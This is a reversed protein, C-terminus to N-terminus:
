ASSEAKQINELTEPALSGGLDIGEFYPYGNEKNYQNRREPDSLVSYAESVLSFLEDTDKGLGSDPHYQRALTRYAQRLEDPSAKPSVGLIKYYDTIIM